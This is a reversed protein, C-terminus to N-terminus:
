EDNIIENLIKADDKSLKCEKKNLSNTKSKLEDIKNKKEIYVYEIKKKNNEIKIQEKYNTELQKKQKILAENIANLKEEQHKNYEVEKGNIYGKYYVGFIISAVTIFIILYRILPNSLATFIPLM